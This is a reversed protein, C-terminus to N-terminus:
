GRLRGLEAALGASVAYPTGPDIMAGLAQRVRVPGPPLARFRRRATVAATAPDCDALGALWPARPTREVRPLRVTPVSPPATDLARWVDAAGCVGGAHAGVLERVGARFVEAGVTARVSRLVEAHQVPGAVEALGATAAVTRLDPGAPPLTLPGAARRGALDAVGAPGVLEAVALQGLLEALGELIGVDPWTRPSVLNGVWQHAAEHALVALRQGPKVDLLRESVLVCGPHELALWPAGPVLVQTYRAGWPAAEGPVDFWELLWDLVRRTDRLLGGVDARRDLAQRALVEVGPGPLVRWPGAVLGLHHSAVDGETTRVVDDTAIPVVVVETPMRDTPGDTGAVFHEAGGLAGSGVVYGLGDSPDVWRSLGHPAPRYAVSRAHEAEEGAPGALTTRTTAGEAELWLQVRRARPALPGSPSREAPASPMPSPM